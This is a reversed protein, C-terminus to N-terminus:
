LSLLCICRYVSVFGITNIDCILTGLCIISLSIVHFRHMWMESHLRERSPSVRLIVFHRIDLHSLEIMYARSASTCVTGYWILTGTNSLETM